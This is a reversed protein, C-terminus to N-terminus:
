RRALELDETERDVLGQVILAGGGALLFGAAERLAFFVSALDLQFPNLRGNDGSM